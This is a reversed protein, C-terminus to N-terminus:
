TSNLVVVKTKGKYADFLFIKLTLLQIIKKTTFTYHEDFFLIVFIVTSFV